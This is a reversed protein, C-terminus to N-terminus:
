VERQLKTNISIGGQPVYRGDVGPKGHQDQGRRLAAESDDIKGQKAEQDEDYWEKKIEMLYATIPAGGDRTGVVRSIKAGMGDTAGGESRSEGTVYEYGGEQAADLRGPDDNVWRRVYGPRQPANLKQRPVGLPVRRRRPTEQEDRSERSESRPLRSM